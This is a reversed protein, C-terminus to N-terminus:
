YLLGVNASGIVFPISLDLGGLLAVLTQGVSAIGLFAAFLLMSKINIISAFGDINMAGISFLGSLVMIGIFASRNEQFQRGLTRTM